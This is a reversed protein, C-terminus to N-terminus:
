PRIKVQRADRATWRSVSFEMSTSEKMLARRRKMLLRPFTRSSRDSWPVLKTPALFSSAAAKCSSSWARALSNRRALSQSQIFKLMFTGAADCMPPIQSLIILETLDTRKTRSCSCPAWSSSSANRVKIVSASFTMLLRGSVTSLRDSGAEGSGM